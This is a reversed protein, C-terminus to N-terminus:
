SERSSSFIALTSQAASSPDPSFSVVDRAVIQAVHRRSLSLPTEALEVTDKRVSSRIYGLRPYVRKMLLIFPPSLGDLIFFNAEFYKSPYIM